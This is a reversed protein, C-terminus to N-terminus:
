GTLSNRLTEIQQNLHELWGNDMGLAAERMRRQTVTSELQRIQSKIIESEPPTMPWNGTIEHFLETNSLCNNILESQDESFGFVEDTALNKFYRM